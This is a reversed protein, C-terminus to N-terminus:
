EHAWEVLIGNLKLGFNIETKKGFYMNKYKKANLCIDWERCYLGCIDLLQQLGKISPSLIEMDDAYFLAAAFMDRIYCGVGSSKLINILSDVYISYFDPSLIGGQRVGATVCFWQSHQGDWKVRCSLGDYWSIIIRLFVMPINREMLKIFLGSHVLRDFAKLADLFTGISVLGM